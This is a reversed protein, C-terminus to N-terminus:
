ITEILYVCDTTPYYQYIYYTYGLHMSKAESCWAILKNMEVPDLAIWPSTGGDYVVDSLPGSKISPTGATAIAFAFKPCEGAM